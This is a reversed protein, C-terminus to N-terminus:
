PGCEPSLADIARPQAERADDIIQVRHQTAPKAVELVSMRAGEDHEIPEDAPPQTRDQSLLLSSGAESCSAGVMLAPRIGEEGLGPQECKM